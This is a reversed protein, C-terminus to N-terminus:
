MSLARGKQGLGHPRCSSLWLSRGNYEDGARIRAVSQMAATNRPSQAAKPCSIERGLQEIEVARVIHDPPAVNFAVRDGAHLGPRATVSPPRIVSM